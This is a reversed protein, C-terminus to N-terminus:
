GRRRSKLGGGIEGRDQVRQLLQLAEQAVEVVRVDLLCPQELAPAGQFGSAVVRAGHGREATEGLLAMLAAFPKTFLHDVAQPLKVRPIRLRSAPARALPSRTGPLTWSSLSRWRCCSLRRRSSWPRPSGTTGRQPM